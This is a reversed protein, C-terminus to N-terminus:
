RIQTPREMKPKDSRKKVPNLFRNLNKRRRMPTPKRLDVRSLPKAPAPKSRLTLRRPTRKPRKNESQEDKIM